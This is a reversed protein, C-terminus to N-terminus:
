GRRLDGASTLIGADYGVGASAATFGMDLGLPKKPESKSKLKEENIVVRIM